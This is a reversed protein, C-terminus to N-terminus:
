ISVPTTAAGYFDILTTPSDTPDPLWYDVSFVVSFTEIANQADWDLDIPSVVKPWGGVMKYSRIITGDKAFQRVNFDLKYNETTLAAERVNSELSNISNQWAEFMERLGYDEDCMVVITYDGFDRDGALKIKRGMYPVDISNIASAPISAARVVFPLQALQQAPLQISSGTQGSGGTSLIYQFLTPRAGGYILGQSKFEAINFM